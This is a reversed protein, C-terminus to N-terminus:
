ASPRYRHPEVPSTREFPSRAARPVGLANAVMSLMTYQGVVYVIEVLAAPDFQEALVAWTGDSITAEAILEDAARLLAAEQSDWQESDSQAGVREIEEVTLGAAAAYAAHEEWEFASRCRRATRLALLEHHRAPLGGELALAAAWGLFPGLLKPRHALVAMTGAPLGDRVTLALLEATEASITSPDPARVREAM